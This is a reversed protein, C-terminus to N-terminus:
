DMRIQTPVRSHIFGSWLGDGGSALLNQTPSETAKHVEAQKNAGAYQQDHQQSDRLTDTPKLRSALGLRRGTNSRRSLSDVSAGHMWLNPLRSKTVARNTPHRQHRCRGTSGVEILKGDRDFRGLAAESIDFCYRHRLLGHTALELRDTGDFNILATLRGDRRIDISAEFFDIGIVRPDLNLLTIM